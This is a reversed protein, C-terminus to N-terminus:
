EARSDSSQSRVNCGGEDCVTTPRKKKLPRRGKMLRNWERYFYVLMLLTFIQAIVVLALVIILTTEFM